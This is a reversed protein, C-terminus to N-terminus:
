GRTRKLYMSLIALDAPTVTSIRAAQGLTRPGIKKLQARAAFSIEEAQDYDFGGPILAKELEELKEAQRTQREIYGEYKIETEAATLEKMRYKRLEPLHELLDSIGIEPRRLLELATAGRDSSAGSKGGLIRQLGDSSVRAVALDEIIKRVNGQIRRTEKVREKSVLGLTHGM